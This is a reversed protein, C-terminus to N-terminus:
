KSALNNKNFLDQIFSDVSTLDVDIQSQFGLSRRKSVKAFGKKEGVKGTGKTFIKEFEKSKWQNTDPNYISLIDQKLEGKLSEAAELFNKRTQPNIVGEGKELKSIKEIREGINALAFEPAKRESQLLESFNESSPKQFSDTEKVMPRDAVPGLLPEDKGQLYDPLFSSLKENEMPQDVSPKLFDSISDQNPKIKNGEMDEDATEMWAPPIDEVKDVIKEPIVNGDSKVLTGKEVKEGVKDMMTDQKKLIESIPKPDQATRPTELGSPGDGEAREQLPTPIGTLSPM